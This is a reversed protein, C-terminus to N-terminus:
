ALEESPTDDSPLPVAFTTDSVDLLMKRPDFRVKSLRSLKGSAGTLTSRSELDLEIFKAPQGDTGIARVFKTSASAAANAELAAWILGIMLGKRFPM